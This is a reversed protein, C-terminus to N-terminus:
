FIKGKSLPVHKFSKGDYHLMNYVLRFDMYKDMDAEKLM